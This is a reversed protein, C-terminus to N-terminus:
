VETVRRGTQARAARRTRGRGHGGGAWHLLAPEVLGLVIRASPRCDVVVVGTACVRRLAAALAHAGAVDVFSVPGLDLLVRARPPLGDAWGDLAASAGLDLEGHLVARPPSWEIWFGEDVVGEV